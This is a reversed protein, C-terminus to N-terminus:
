CPLVYRLHFLTFLIGFTTLCIRSVASFIRALIRLFLFGDMLTGTRESWGHFKGRTRKIKGTVFDKYTYM